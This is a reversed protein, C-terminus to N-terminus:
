ILDKKRQLLLSSFNREVNAVGHENKQETLIQAQSKMLNKVTIQHDNSPM